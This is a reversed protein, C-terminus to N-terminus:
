VGLDFKELQPKMYDYGIIEFDDVKIDYFNTGDPVNLILKAERKIDDKKMTELRIITEGLQEFHRDYVHVNKRYHEFLGVEYGCHKAVMMQLAVYQAQNIGTGAVLYDSSRQILTLDLYNIGNINAVTWQTEYACEVLMKKDINAWHWFSIIHRRSSPDHKLNYLLSNLQNRSLEYRYVYDEEPELWKLVHKKYKRNNILAKQLGGKSGNIALLCDNQTLYVVDDCTFPKMTAYIKNERSQLFTCTELSYANSGYYDKDLDWGKFNDEKALHYQPLLRVDRLFQEFSHWRNHVFVDQYCDKHEYKTSYCRRMMNEWKDKLILKQQESLNPVKKWDGLYGIDYVTREYPDVGKSIGVLDERMEQKYGSNIHQIIKYHRIKGNDDRVSYEKIIIYRNLYTIGDISEELESIMPIDKLVSHEKSVLRKKIKVVNRKMENPRHSELNYAYAKGINGDENCWDIWWHCNHNEFGEQTNTQSQFIALTEGIFTKVPLFRTFTLPFEGAQLDFIEYVGGRISIANAPAGDSKYKARPNKDKYGTRELRKINELLYM